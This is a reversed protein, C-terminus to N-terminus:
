KTAKAPTKEERKQSPPTSATAKVGNVGNAFAFNFGQFRMRREADNTLSLMRDLFDKAGIRELATKAEETACQILLDYKVAFQVALSFLEMPNSTSAVSPTQDSKVVIRGAGAGGNEFLRVEQKAGNVSLIHVEDFFLAWNFPKDKTTEPM